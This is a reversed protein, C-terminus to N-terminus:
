TTEARQGYEKVAEHHKCPHQGPAAQLHWHRVVAVAQVLLLGTALRESRAAESALAALTPLDYARRCLAALGERQIVPIVSLLGYYHQQQPRGTAAAAASSSLLLSSAPCGNSNDSASSPAEEMALLEATATVVTQNVTIPQEYVDRQADEAREM